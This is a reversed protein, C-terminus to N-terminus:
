SWIEKYWAETEDGLELFISGTAVSVEEGEKIEFNMAAIRLGKKVIHVNNINRAHLRAVTKGGDMVLMLDEYAVNCKMKLNKGSFEGMHIELNEFEAKIDDAIM